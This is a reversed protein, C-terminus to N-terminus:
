KTILRINDSVIDDLSPLSLDKDRESFCFMLINNDKCKGVAMDYRERKKKEYDLYDVVFIGKSSMGSFNRIASRFKDIDTIDTVQTKCEVFFLKSGLDVIIDIENKPLNDLANDYLDVFKCNMWIDKVGQVRNAFEMASKLEFWGSNFVIDLAHPGNFVFNELKRKRFNYLFLNVLHEEKNWEVYSGDKLVYSKGIPEEFNNSATLAWFSKFNNHRIKEVKLCEEKDQDTYDSYPTYSAVKVGYLAFRLNKDISEEIIEHTYLNQVQNNQDVLIFQANQLSMFRKYFVLTWAKTGSTLDLVIEDDKVKDFIEQAATEIEELNTPDCEVMEYSSAIRATCIAIRDAEKITQRSHVLILRDIQGLSKIGLYVPIPQSGVLAIHTKM